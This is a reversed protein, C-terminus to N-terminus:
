VDFLSSFRRDCTGSLQQQRLFHFLISSRSRLIILGSPSCARAAALSTRQATVYLLLTLRARSPAVASALDISLTSARAAANPVVTLTVTSPGSASAAIFSM